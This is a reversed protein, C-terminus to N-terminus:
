NREKLKYNMTINKSKVIGLANNYQINSGRAEHKGIKSTYTLPSTVTNTKKDYTAEQTKFILGDKRKYAINGDLKIINGKYLGQDATMNALYEKTNDTYDINYVLYRNTYRVGETGDMVTTLGKSNLEILKFDDLEFVPIEGFDKQTINLPQFGFFIAVLIAVLGLFFVNISM